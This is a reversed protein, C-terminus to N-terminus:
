QVEEDATVKLPLSDNKGIIDHQPVFDGRGRCMAVNIDQQNMLLIM